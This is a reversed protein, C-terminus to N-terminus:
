GAPAGRAEFAAPRAQAAQIEGDRLGGKGGRAKEGSM